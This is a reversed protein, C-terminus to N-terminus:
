RRASVRRERASAPVRVAPAAGGRARHASGPHASVRPVVLARRAERTAPMTVEDDADVRSPELHQCPSLDRERALVHTPRPAKAEPETDDGTSAVDTTSAGLFRM